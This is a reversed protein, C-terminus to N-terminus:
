FHRQGQISWFFQGMFQGNNAQGPQGDRPVSSDPLDPHSVARRRILGLQAITRWSQPKRLLCWARAAGEGRAVTM